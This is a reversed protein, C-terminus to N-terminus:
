LKIESVKKSSGIMCFIRAYIKVSRQIQGILAALIHSIEAYDNQKIKNIPDSGPRCSDHSRSILLLCNDFFHTEQSLNQDFLECRFRGTLQEQRSSQFSPKSKKSLLFFSLKYFINSQNFNQGTVTASTRKLKDPMTEESLPLSSRNSARVRPLKGLSLMVVYRLMAISGWLAM